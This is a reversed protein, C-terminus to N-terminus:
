GGSYWQDALQLLQLTTIPGDFGPVTVSQSWDDAAALLDLTTVEDIPAHLRKYFDIINVARVTVEQSGEIGAMVEGDPAVILSFDITYTGPESFTLTFDTTATYDAPLPFGSAPGWYGSDTFTYTTNTSDTAKFTVSGPGTASFEFRVGDYGVQGLVDTEFTVPILTEETAVIVDPMDYDFSYTSHTMPVTMAEDGFWPDFLVYDSVADGEGGLNLPVQYPGSAAGWWNYTADVVEGSGNIVGYLTNGHIKNYNVNVDSGTPLGGYQAAVNDYIGVGHDFATIENNTIDVELTGSPWYSSSEHRLLVGTSPPTGAGGCNGGNLVNGDIVTNTFPGYAAYLQIGTWPDTYPGGSLTIENDSIAIDCDALECYARFDILAVHAGVTSNQSFVNDHVNIGDFSVGEDEGIGGIFRIASSWVSNTFTNGYIEFNSVTQGTAYNWVYVGRGYEAFTNDTVTVNEIDFNDDDGDGIYIGSVCAAFESSQVQGFTSGTVDLGDITSRLYIGTWIGEFTSGTVELDSLNLYNPAFIGITRYYTTHTVPVFDCDTVSLNAFSNEIYIGYANAGTGAGLDTFDVHDVTLGTSAGSVIRIGEILYPDDTIELDQITVDDASVTIVPSGAAKVFTQDEGSGVLTLSKDITLQEDYTGPLVNMTDGASAADIAEQISGNTYWTWLHAVGIYNAGWWPSYDVNNSVENGTGSTNTTAEYPGSADGWWNATADVDFTDVTNNVGYSANGSIDSSQISVSYSSSSSEGATDEVYVGTDQGTITEGTLNITIDGDGQTYIYYGYDGNDTLANGGGSVTVSSGYEKDEDTFLAGGVTNDHFNNDDLTLDIGVNGTFGDYENGVYLGWQSDYVENGMVSVDKTLAPDGGTYCNEVYIGASNSGDSAAATDYGHITNESITGTAESGLEVAYGFDDTTKYFTNGTIAADVYTHFLAAVRGPDIFTNNSVTIDARAEAAYDDARYYSTIEAYGGSADPVSMNEIINNNVTGTSDWYLIGMHNNGKILDFDMTMNQLVVDTSDVIRFVVKRSSGYGGVNWDLTTSPKIIVQTKDVGSITLGAFGDVNITEDYTGPGVVITDGAQAVANIPYRQIASYIGRVHYFNPPGGTYDYYRVEDGPTKVIVSKDFANGGFISDWDLDGYGEAEGYKGWAVVSGKDQGTFNNSEITAAGVPYVDWPDGGPGVFEIGYSGLDFTNGSIVRNGVDGSWGPGSSIRVGAPYENGMDLYNDEFAYSQIYSTNTGSNYRPDYMYICSVQDYAHLTCDKITSNDGIVSITKFNYNPDAYNTVDLGSIAVNDAQIFITSLNSIPTDREPVVFAQVDNADTIPNGDEDVGQITVSKDVFINFDTAGAGGNVPNRDNAEDQDYTGPSVDITDGASAADVADQIRSFITPVKIGSGRIVVARDFTNDALTAEMDIDVNATCDVQYRNDEFTNGSVAAVSLDTDDYGVAIGATNGTLINGTVTAETGPGFYDTVLIGASTSGDVSAVGLCDTITNGTVAAVAGGGVEVGYDLWDGAGKGTYTNDSFTSGTIGTGFYLVGERGMAAFTCGTVDVNDNGFVAMACGAYSSGSAEYQMDNFGCDAIAGSGKDRIGQWIKYGSGDLTVDSLNFECGDNVLFWGRADGSAGTDQAPEITTTAKDAGSITLDKNIVIQGVEIYTGPAVEITDGSAVQSIAYQITQWPYFWSGDGTDDDGTTSVYYTDGPSAAVPTLMVLCLGLALVLAVLLIFARKM